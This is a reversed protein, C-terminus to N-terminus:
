CHNPVLIHRKNGEKREEYSKMRHCCACLTQLNTPDDNNHNGDIHDVDLECPHGEYGCKECKKQKVRRYTRDVIKYRIRRCQGCWCSFKQRGTKKDRGISTVPRENCEECLDGKENYYKKM